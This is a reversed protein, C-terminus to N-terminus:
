DKEILSEFVEMEEEMTTKIEETILARSAAALVETETVKHIYTSLGNVSRGLMSAITNLPTRSAVMLSAFSHRCQYYTLTPDVKKLLRNIRNSYNCKGEWPRSRMLSLLKRTLDTVPCVIHAVERTKTRGITFTYYWDGEIFREEVSSWDVKMLDVLAMGSFHYGALWVGLAERVEMDETESWKKIYTSIEYQSRSKPKERDRFGDLKFKWKLMPNEKIYGRQAAYGLLSKVDKLYFAMASPSVRMTRAYGQINALTLDSLTYDEGFYSQLSRHTTVYGKSTRVSLKKVRCMELIVKYPSVAVEKELVERATFDTRGSLLLDIRDELEHLRKSLPRVAKWSGKSYEKETLSVGTSEKAKTGKWVVQISLPCKGDSKRKKTRDIVVKVAPRDTKM